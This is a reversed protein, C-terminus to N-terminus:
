NQSLGKNKKNIRFIINVEPHKKIYNHVLEVSCDKSCDDIVIIEYTKNTEKMAKVIMDLTNVIFVEENYCSVFLTLDLLYNECPHKVDNENCYHQASASLVVPADWYDNKSIM